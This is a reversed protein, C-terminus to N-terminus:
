LIQTIIKFVFFTTFLSIGVSTVYLFRALLPMKQQIWLALLTNLAICSIMLLLPLFIEYTHGLRAYGWARKNYLPIYMPLMHYTIAIFIGSILFLAINTTTTVAAIKESYLQKIIKQM